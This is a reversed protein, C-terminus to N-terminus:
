PLEDIEDGLASTDYKCINTDHHVYYRNSSDLVWIDKVSDGCNPCRKKKSRARTSNPEEQMIGTWIMSAIVVLFLFEM